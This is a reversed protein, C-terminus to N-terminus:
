GSFRGEAWLRAATSAVPSGYGKQMLRRYAGERQNKSQPPRRELLALARAVEGDDGDEFDPWEIGEPDIGWGELEAEIGRVGRGAALRSRVLVEAFRADDVLGCRMARELAEEVVDEPYEERLLRQRLEEVAHDRPAQLREIRRFAGEPSYDVTRARM